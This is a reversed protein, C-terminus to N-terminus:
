ALTWNYTSQPLYEDTDIMTNALKNCSVHFKSWDQIDNQLLHFQDIDFELGHNSVGEPPYFYNMFPKGPVSSPRSEHKRIQRNNWTRVCSNIELQIIPM